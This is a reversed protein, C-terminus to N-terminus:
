LPEREELIKILRQLEYRTNVNFFSELKPDIPKIEAIPFFHVASILDIFNRLRFARKVITQQLAKIAPEKEYIACLPEIYGNPFQPIVAWCLSRVGRYYKFLLEIVEAKILPMDCGLLLVREYQANKVGTLIGILPSEISPDEDLIFRAPYEIAHKLKMLRKKTKTVIIIDDSISRVREFTHAILPKDRIFILAKDVGLRKAKGGALIVISLDMNVRM